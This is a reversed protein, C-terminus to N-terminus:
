ISLWRKVAKEIEEATNERILFTVCERDKGSETFVKDEKISYYLPLRDVRGNSFFDKSKKAVAKLGKM